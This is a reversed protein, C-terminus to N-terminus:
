GGAPRRTRCVQVGAFETTAPSATTFWLEGTVPAATVAAITAIDHVPDAPHCIAVTDRLMAQLHEDDVPTDALLAHAREQRARSSAALSEPAPAERVVSTPHLCHNTRVIPGEGLQTIVHGEPMAEVAVADDPGAVLYNHGGALPADTVCQVAAALTTQQLARRVVFPWTVGVRGVRASLNTIGVAIGAENMGIQALCGTTTLVVASPHGDPELRLIRVHDAASAHMDWTQALRPHGDRTGRALIATCDHEHPGTGTRARMFDVLDTFGGLVIAEPVSIGAASAIATLEDLLDPAYQEHAALTSEAVALVDDRHLRAGGSWSGSAALDIREAAFQRISPAFASGHARGMAQPDGRLLLPGRPPSETGTAADTM